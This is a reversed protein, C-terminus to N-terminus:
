SSLPGVGITTTQGLPFTDLLRRIDESTISQVIALEDEISRYERRFLWNNGLAGLRGMPREGRLVLRSSVKNKAQELEDATIGNRNVEAYIAGV